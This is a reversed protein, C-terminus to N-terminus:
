AGTGGDGKSAHLIEAQRDDGSLDWRSTGLDSRTRLDNRQEQLENVNDLAAAADPWFRTSRSSRAPAAHCRSRGQLAQMEQMSSSASIEMKEESRRQCQCAWAILPALHM